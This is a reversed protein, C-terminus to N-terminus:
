LIGRTRLHHRAEPYLVAREEETTAMIRLRNSIDLLMAWTQWSPPSRLVVRDVHRRDLPNMCESM